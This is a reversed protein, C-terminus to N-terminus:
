TTKYEELFSDLSWTQGSPSFLTFDRETSDKLDIHTWATFVEMRRIYTFPRKRLRIQRIIADRVVEAPTAQVVFDIARGFKHMSYFAGVNAYFSRLGRYQIDGSFPWDNVYVPLDFLDRVADVILIIRPDIFEIARDGFRSYYHRDVLEQVSFHRPMQMM